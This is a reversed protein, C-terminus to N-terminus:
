PFLTSSRYSHDVVVEFLGPEPGGESFSTRVTSTM